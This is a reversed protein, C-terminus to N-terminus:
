ARTTEAWSYSHTRIVRNQYDHLYKYVFL